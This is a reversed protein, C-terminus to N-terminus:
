GCDDKKGQTRWTRKRKPKEERQGKRRTGKIMIEGVIGKGKSREHIEM